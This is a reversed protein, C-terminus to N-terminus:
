RRGRRGRRRVVVFRLVGFVVVVVILGILLLVMHGVSFYTFM